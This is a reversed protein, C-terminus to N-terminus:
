VVERKLVRVRSPADFPLPRVLTHTSLKSSVRATRSGLYAGKGLFARIGLSCEWGSQIGPNGHGM